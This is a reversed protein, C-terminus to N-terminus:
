LPAHALCQVYIQHSSWLAKLSLGVLLKRWCWASQQCQYPACSSLVHVLDIHM